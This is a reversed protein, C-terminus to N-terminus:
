LLFTNSAQVENHILYIDVAPRVEKHLNILKILLAYYSSLRIVSM